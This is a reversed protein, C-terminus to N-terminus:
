PQRGLWSREFGKFSAIAPEFRKTSRFLRDFVSIRDSKKGDLDYAENKVPDRWLAKDEAGAYHKLKEDLEPNHAIGEIELMVEKMCEAFKTFKDFGKIKIEETVFGPVRDADASRRKIHFGNGIPGEHEPVKCSTPEVRPKCFRGSIDNNELKLYTSPRALPSNM